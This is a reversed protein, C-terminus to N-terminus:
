HRSTQTPCVMWSRTAKAILETLSKELTNVGEEDFMDVLIQKAKRDIDGLVKPDVSAKHTPSQRSVLADCYSQTNDAIKDAVSTVKGIRNLINSSEGKL